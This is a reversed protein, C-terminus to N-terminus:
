IYGIMDYFTRPLFVQVPTANQDLDFMLAKKIADRRAQPINNPNINPGVTKNTLLEVLTWADGEVVRSIPGDFIKSPAPDVLQDEHHRMVAMALASAANSGQMDWMYEVVGQDPTGKVV